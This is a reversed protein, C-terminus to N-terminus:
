LSESEHIVCLLCVASIFSLFWQSGVCLPFSSIQNEETHLVLQSHGLDGLDVGKYGGRGGHGVEKAKYGRGVSGRCSCSWSCECESGSEAPGAVLQQTLITM